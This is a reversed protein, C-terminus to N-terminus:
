NNDIIRHSTPYVRAPCWYLVHAEVDLYNSIGDLNEAQYGLKTLSALRVAVCERSLGLEKWHRPHTEILLDPTYRQITERAGELVHAEYGEADIKLFTPAIARTQCFADVTTVPVVQARGGVVASPAVSAHGSCEAAYYFIVEGVTNGVAAQIVEVRDTLQNMNVHRQLEDATQLAPEFAFVKGSSGVWRAMLLTYLGINAGVDLVVAGEHIRDKMAGFSNGDADEPIDRAADSSIYLVPEGHIYRPIGKPYLLGLLLRYAPRVAAVTWCLGVANLCGRVNEGILEVIRM